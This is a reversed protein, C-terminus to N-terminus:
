LEQNLLVSRNLYNQIRRMWRPFIRRLRNTERILEQKLTPAYRDNMVSGALAAGSHKLLQQAEDIQSETTCGTLLNLLTHDCSACVQEPPIGNEGVHLLPATDCLMLDFQSRTSDFFLRLTEPDRFEVCRVSKEPCCLVYLGPTSTEQAAHEWHGTLPLWENRLLSMSEHLSPVLMNLEILLVRKGSEAARRAIAQCLLSNGSDAEPSSIAIQDLSHRVLHAYITEIAADQEYTSM